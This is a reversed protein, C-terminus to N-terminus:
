KEVRLRQTVWTIGDAGILVGSLWRNEPKTPAKSRKFLGGAQLLELDLSSPNLYNDADIAQNMAAGAFLNNGIPDKLIVDFDFEQGPRVSEPLRVDVNPPKTGSTLTIKENLIEQSVLKDGQFVQRSQITGQLSARNDQLKGTGEIKTQTQAVLDDGQKEWSILETTYKLDPYRKWLSKLSQELDAYKLGDSNTFQPSYFTKIQEFNKQNGAADIQGILTKLQLPATNPDEARLNSALNFTMGLSLLFAMSWNVPKLFTSFSFRSFLTARIM